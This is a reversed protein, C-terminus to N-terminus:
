SVQESHLVVSRLLDQLQGLAWKARVALQSDSVALADEERPRVLLPSELLNFTRAEAM